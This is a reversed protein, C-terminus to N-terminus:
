FFSIPLMRRGYTTSGGRREHALADTRTASADDCAKAMATAVVRGDRGLHPHGPVTLAVFADIVELPPM